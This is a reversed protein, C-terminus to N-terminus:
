CVSMYKLVNEMAQDLVMDKDEFIKSWGLRSAM